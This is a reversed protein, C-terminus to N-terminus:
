TASSCCCSLVGCPKLHFCRWFEESHLRRVCCVRRPATSKFVSGRGPPDLGASAHVVSCKWDPRLSSILARCVDRSQWMKMHRCHCWELCDQAWKVLQQQLSSVGWLWDVSASFDQPKTARRQSNHHSKEKKCATKLMSQTRKIKFLM